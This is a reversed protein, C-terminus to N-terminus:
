ANASERCQERCLTLLNILPKVEIKDRMAPDDVLAQNGVIILLRKQRSLSVCLRNPSLVHGFRGFASRKHNCRGLSLIVVDFERGQFADVTGVRFREGGDSADGAREHIIHWGMDDQRTLGERQLNQYICDRQASYYAIVGLSMGNMTPDNLLSAALKAVEAAETQWYTSHDKSKSERDENGKPKVNHWTICRGEYRAVSHEKRLGKPSGYGEGHPDYFQDSVFKALVPHTRFQEDLTVFRPHGDRESQKNAHDKLLQFLSKQLYDRTEELLTADEHGEEMKKALHDEILHPLQRHDGVLIIRQRAQAMPIYLDLPTSRAAEDVVVTMVGQSEGVADIRAKHLDSRESGQCTAAYTTTYRSLTEGVDEIDELRSLFEWAIRQKASFANLEQQCIASEIRNFIDNLPEIKLKRHSTAVPRWRRLLRSRLVSLGQLDEDCKPPDCLLRELVERENEAFRNGLKALLARVRAAGDDQWSVIRTRLSRVLRLDTPRRSYKGLEQQLQELDAVISAPLHNWADPLVSAIAAILNSLVPPGLRYRLILDRMRSSFNDFATPRYDNRVSQKLKRQWPGILDRWTQEADGDKSRVGFKIPPLGHVNIRAAANEVADHQFGSILFMGPAMESGAVQGLRELIARIVTTKGTGPPGQILCLDQCNVAMEIAREQQATPPLEPFIKRRIEPTLGSIRTRQKSQYPKGAILQGLPQLPSNGGVITRYAAQRRGAMTLNGSLSCVMVGSAPPDNKDRALRVVVCRNEPDVKLVSGFTLPLPRGISTLGDVNLDVDQGTFNQPTLGDLWEKYETADQYFEVQDGSAKLGAPIDNCLVKITGSESWSTYPICGISRVRELTESIELEFYRSWTQQYMVESTDWKHRLPDAEPCKGLCAIRDASFRPSAYALVMDSRKRRSKGPFTVNTVEYLSLGSETARKVKVSAVQGHIVFVGENRSQDDPGIVIRPKETGNAAQVVIDRELWNEYGGGLRFVSELNKRVKKVNSLDLHVVFPEISFSDPQFPHITLEVLYDPERHQVRDVVCIFSIESNHINTLRRHDEEALCSISSIGEGAMTSILVRDNNSWTLRVEAPKRYISETSPHDLRALFTFSETVPPINPKM